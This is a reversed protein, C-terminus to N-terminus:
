KQQCTTCTADGNPVRFFCFTFFTFCWLFPAFCVFFVQPSLPVISELISDLYSTVGTPYNHALVESSRKEALVGTPHQDSIDAKEVIEWKSILDEVAQVFRTPNMKKRESIMIIMVNNEMQELRELAAQKEQMLQLIRRYYYAVINSHLLRFMQAIATQYTKAM